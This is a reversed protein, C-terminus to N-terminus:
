DNEKKNIFNLFSTINEHIKEESEQDEMEKFEEKLKNIERLILSIGFAAAYGEIEAKTRKSQYFNERSANEAGFLARESKYNLLEILGKTIPYDLWQNLEEVTIPKM